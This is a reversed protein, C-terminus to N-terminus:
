WQNRDKRMLTTRYEFTFPINRVYDDPDPDVGDIQRFLEEAAAKGKTFGPQMITTLKQQGKTIIDIGDFGILSYRGPIDINMEEAKNMIGYALIDAMCIICSADGSERFILEAAKEGEDFSPDVSIIKQDELKLGLKDLAKRYGRLRKTITDDQDKDMGKYANDKLSVIAFNRHGLEIARSMQTEAAKEDDTQILVIGEVPNGDISVVPLHRRRIVDTISKDLTCGMTIIGDVMATKLAEAISSNLPPIITINSGNEECVKGIGKMVEMSYPNELMSNISQPLLFGIVNMKGKSLNQAIPDPLYDLEKAAAMIKKYTDQSIKEPQNFAFSVSAKSFGSLRAIDAMTARRADAM